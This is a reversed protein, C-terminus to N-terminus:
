NEKAKAASIWRFMRSLEEWDVEGVAGPIIISRARGAFSVISVCFRVFKSILIFGVVWVAASIVEAVLRYALWWIFAERADGGLSALAESVIKLEETM